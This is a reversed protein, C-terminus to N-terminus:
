QGGNTLAESRWLRQYTVYSDFLAGGELSLATRVLILVNAIAAGALSLNMVQLVSHALGIICVSNRHNSGRMARRPLEGKRHAPLGAQSLV